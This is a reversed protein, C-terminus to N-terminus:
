VSNTYTASHSCTSHQEFHRCDFNRYTKYLKTNEPMLASQLADTPYWDSHM